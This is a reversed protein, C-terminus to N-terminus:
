ASCARITRICTTSYSTAAPPCTRCGRKWTRRSRTTVIIATSSSCDFPAKPGARSDSVIPEIHDILGVRKLNDLFAHYTTGKEKLMPHDDAKLGPGGDFTDVAHVHERGGALSGAALWATSRGMWSGVEVIEGKGEGDRALRYLVYGVLPSLWGEIDKFRANLDIFEVVARVGGVIERDM